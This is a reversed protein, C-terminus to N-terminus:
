CLGVLCREVVPQSWTWCGKADYIAKLSNFWPLNITHEEWTGGIYRNVFPMWNSHILQNTTWHKKNYEAQAGNRIAMGCLIHDLHGYEGWPNHTIVPGGDSVRKVCDVAGLMLDRLQADRTPLRYFESNARLNVVESVGCKDAVEQLCDGREMCWQRELNNEDSVMCVINKVCGPVQLFPWFFLLEDDPHAIFLTAGVPLNGM